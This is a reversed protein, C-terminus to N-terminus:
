KLMSCYHYRGEYAVGDISRELTFAKRNAITMTTAHVGVGNNSAASVTTRTALCAESYRFVNGSQVINRPECQANQILFATGTWTLPLAKGPAECSIGDEYYIGKDLPLREESGATGALFFGAVITALGFIARLGSKGMSGTM